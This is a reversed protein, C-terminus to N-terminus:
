EVHRRQFAARAAEDASPDNVNIPDCFHGMATATKRLRDQADELLGDSSGGTTIAARM